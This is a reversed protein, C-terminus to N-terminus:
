ANKKLEENEILLDLYHRAKKLDEIGNKDRWRTVYKVINGECFQLNNKLCYEVPQIAKSKYHKGGVQQELATKPTPVEENVELYIIPRNSKSTEPLCLERGVCKPRTGEFTCSNCGHSGVAKYKKGCYEGVEGVALYLPHKEREEKTM